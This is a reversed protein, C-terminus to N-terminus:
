CSGDESSFAPLNEEQAVRWTEGKELDRLLFPMYAKMKLALKLCTSEAAKELSLLISLATM